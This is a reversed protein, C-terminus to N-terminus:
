MEDRALPTLIIGPSVSNVGAGSNPVAEQGLFPLALLDEAPTHALAHAIDLAPPPAMRGAMSSIHLGAGGPAIVAGFEELVLATGYLDVALVAQASAQVPSLGATNVVQVVDGLDAAARALAHVSERDSVDVHRAVVTHGTAELAEATGALINEAFDALLVTKGAGQRRATAQGIGGAGVIM